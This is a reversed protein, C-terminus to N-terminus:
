TSYLTAAFVVRHYAKLIAFLAAFLAIATLLRQPRIWLFLSLPALFDVPWDATLHRRPSRLARLGESAASSRARLDPRRRTARV